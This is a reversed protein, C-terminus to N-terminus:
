HALPQGGSPDGQAVREGSPQPEAAELEQHGCQAEEQTVAEGHDQGVETGPYGKHQQGDDADVHHPFAEAAVFLQVIVVGGFCHQRQGNGGADIGESDADAKGGHLDIDQGGGAQNAADGAQQRGDTHAYTGEEAILVASRGLADAADHQDQDAELGQQRSQSNQLKQQISETGITLTSARM